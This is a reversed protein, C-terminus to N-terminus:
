STQVTKIEENNESLLYATMSTYFVRSPYDVSCLSLVSSLDAKKQLEVVRDALKSGFRLDKQFDSFEVSLASGVM